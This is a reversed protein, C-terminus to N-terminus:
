EYCASKAPTPAPVAPTSAAEAIRLHAKTTHHESTFYKLVLALGFYLVTMSLDGLHAVKVNTAIVGQEALLRLGQLVCVFGLASALLRAKRGPYRRLIVIACAITLLCMGLSIGIVPDLELISRM